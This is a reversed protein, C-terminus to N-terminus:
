MSSVAQAWSVTARHPCHCDCRHISWNKTCIKSCKWRLRHISQPRRSPPPRPWQTLHRWHGMTAANWNSVSMSNICTWNSSRVKRSSCKNKAIGNHSATSRSISRNPIRNCSSGKNLITIQSQMINADFTTWFAIIWATPMATIAAAMAFHFIAITTGCQARIISRQKTITTTSTPKTRTPDCCRKRTRWTFAM